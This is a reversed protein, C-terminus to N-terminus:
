RKNWGNMGNKLSRVKNDLKQNLKSAVPKSANGEYCTIIVEKDGLHNEIETPLDGLVKRASINFIQGEGPDIKDRNYRSSDRIDIIISKEKDSIKRELEQPEIEDVDPESFLNFM